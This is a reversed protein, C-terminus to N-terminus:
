RLGANRDAIRRWAMFGIIGILAVIIIWPAVEVIKEALPFAPALNNIADVALTAVGTGVIGTRAANMTGTSGVPKIQELAEAATEPPKTDIDNFFVHATRGGRHPVTYVPEKKKAWKPKKIGTEYYHTSRKTFDSVQGAVAARAVDKCHEFWPGHAELIRVRNPDNQNWCSFQWPQLCVGAVTNPWRNFKVRNIIVCAIARADKDNNVEAEGYLTRALTDIDKERQDM